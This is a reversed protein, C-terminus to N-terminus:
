PRPNVWNMFVASTIFGIAARVIGTDASPTPKRNTGLSVTTKENMARSGSPEVVVLPKLVAKSSAVASAASSGLGSGLPMGKEVGLEIGTEIGAWKLVATAAIGATNSAADRPLRGDDGSVSVIAVGNGEVRRARVCDGPEDLALGLVDFGPGLNAVTAPAFAEVQM